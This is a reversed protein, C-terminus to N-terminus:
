PQPNGAARYIDYWEGRTLRVAQAALLDDLHAENMTGTIVQFGAPHRLVWAIATAAPSLGYAAGIETLRATLQAFGPENLFCGEIMGYQLPSWAQLGVGRLMCWDVLEGDGDAEGANNAALGFRVLGAHAPGFQVQDFELKRDVYNQLFKMRKASFNSVGFRLVKGHAYLRDFAEAVEEPEMLADPRHLLLVDLHDTGLRELIGDVSALIHDRSSDYCMGPVIGCKSQLVVKKRRGPEAKLWAGFTRECEGGGYIDAHDFWNAGVDLAHSLFRDAEGRSRGALRMCGTIIRNKKEM